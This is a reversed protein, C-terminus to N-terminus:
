FQTACHGDPNDTAHPQVADVGRASELLGAVIGRDLRCVVEPHAAAVSAFPCTRTFLRRKDGDATVEFGAGLLARAVAFLANEFGEEDPMGVEAALERGYARGIEEAAGPGRDPALRNIVRVLLEALLDYRRAPYTLMIEKDTAEFGKAPRGAGPRPPRRASVQLYGSEVLRDLHHRAVNPHIDFLGAIQAATTPDASERVSVYIGRRTPNGLTSALDELTREFDPAPM